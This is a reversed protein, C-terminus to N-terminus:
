RTSAVVLADSDYSVAKGDFALMGWQPGDQRHAPAPATAKGAVAASVHRPPNKMISSPTTRPNFHKM